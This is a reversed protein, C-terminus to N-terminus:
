KACLTARVARLSILSRVFETVTGGLLQCTRRVAYPALLAECLLMAIAVAWLGTSPAGGAAVLVALSTAAIYRWALGEHHNTGMLLGSAVTWIANVAAGALFMAMLGHSVSVAGHTWISMLFPAAFFLGISAATLFVITAEFALENLRRARVLDGSGYLYSFEPWLSTKIISVMQVMIRTYTRTTSYIVAAAAGLTAGVVLTLGQYYIANGAPFAMFFLSPRLIVRLERTSFESLGLRCERPFKLSDLFICVFSLLRMAALAAALTVTSHSLFACVSIAVVELLRSTNKLIVIRPNRFASRYVIEFVGILLGTITYVALLAMTWAASVPSTFHLHLVACWPFLFATPVAFVTIAGCGFLLFGWATHLASRVDDPKNEAALMAAKNASVSVVGGEVLSLYTPIASLLLWEGYQEKTWAYLFIPVTVVQMLINVVQAFGNAGLNAILRKKLM